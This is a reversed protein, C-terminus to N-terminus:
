ENEEGRNSRERDTEREIQREIQRNSRKFNSRLNSADGWVINPRMKNHIEMLHALADDSHWVIEGLM